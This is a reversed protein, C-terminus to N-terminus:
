RSPPDRDYEPDQVLDNFPDHRPDAETVADYDGNVIAVMNAISESAGEFYRSHDDLNIHEGRNLSEARFRVAGFDDEAPDNGLTGVGSPDMWGESGSYTVADRSNAGVFVHEEGIGLDSADDAEGAGPSGVLVIDDAQLDEETAALATTTSGYSHGIVTLHVVDDLRSAQVGAVDDALLAAGDRAADSDIVGAFDESLEGSPTSPEGSPADYGVWAVVATTRAGVNHQRATEYVVWSTGVQTQIGGSVQTGFGPVTFAVDDATDVDGVSIAARGDGDFAAPEFVLLQVTVPLQSWRDDMLEATAIASSVARANALEHAQDKTLTGNAEAPGLRALTDALVLRNAEDRVGAPIGNARGLQAPYATMVAVQEAATLSAWWAVRKEDSMGIPHGALDMGPFLLLATSYDEPIPPVLPLLGQRELVAWDHPNPGRDLQGAVGAAEDDLDAELQQVRGDFGTRKIRSLGGGDNVVEANIADIGQNYAQIATAWRILVTAAFRAAEDLEAISKLLAVDVPDLATELSGDLFGSAQHVRSRAASGVLVIKQANLCQEAALGVIDDVAGPYHEYM